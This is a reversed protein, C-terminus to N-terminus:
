EDDDSKNDDDSDNKNDDDDDDDDQKADFDVESATDDKASKRGKSGSKKDDSKSPKTLIYPGLLKIMLNCTEKTDKTYHLWNLSEINFGDATVFKKIATKIRKNYTVMSVSESVTKNSFADEFYCHFPTFICAIPYLASMFLRISCPHVILKNFCKEFIPSAPAGNMVIHYVFKSGLLASWAHIVDKDDPTVNAAYQKDSQKEDIMEDTISKINNLAQFWLTKRDKIMTLLKFRAAYIAKIVTPMKATPIKGIANFLDIYGIDDPKPIKELILSDDPIDDMYFVNLPKIFREESGPILKKLWAANFISPTNIIYTQLLNLYDIPDTTSEEKKSKPTTFSPMKPIVKQEIYKHFEIIPATADEDEFEKLKGDEPDIWSVIPKKNKLSYKFMQQKAPITRTSKETSKEIDHTPHEEHLATLHDIYAGARTTLDDAIKPLLIKVYDSFADDMGANEDFDNVEIDANANYPLEDIHICKSKNITNSLGCVNGSASSVSKSEGSSKASPQLKRTRKQQGDTSKGGSNRAPVSKTSTSKEGADSSPDDAFNRNKQVKVTSKSSKSSSSSEKLENIYSTFPNMIDISGVGIQKAVYNRIKTINDVVTIDVDPHDALYKDTESRLQAIQEESLKVAVKKGPM